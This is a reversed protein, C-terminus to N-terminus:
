WSSWFSTLPITGLSRSMFSHWWEAVVDLAVLDRGDRANYFRKEVYWYIMNEAAEISFVCGYDTVLKNKKIHDVPSSCPKLSTIFLV